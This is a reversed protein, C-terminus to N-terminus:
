PVTLERYLFWSGSRDDVDKPARDYYLEFIRGEKTLVRFYFRGVGWSGRKLAKAMNAPRMNHAMHGRRKFDQWEGLKEHIEFTTGQWIFRDPCDPKKKLLPSKDFHVEIDEGIFQLPKYDMSSRKRLFGALM